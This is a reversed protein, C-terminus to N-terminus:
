TFRTQGNLKKKFKAKSVMILIDFDLTIQSNLNWYQCFDGAVCCASQVCQTSLPQLLLLVFTRRKFLVYLASDLQTWTTLAVVGGYYFSLFAATAATQNQERVKVTCGTCEKRLLVGCRRTCASCASLKNVWCPLRPCCSLVSSLILVAAAARQTSPAHQWTNCHSQIPSWKMQSSSLLSSFVTYLKLRKERIKVHSLM